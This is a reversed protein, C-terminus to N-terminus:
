APESVAGDVPPESEEEAYSRRRRALGLRIQVQTPFLTRLTTAWDRYWDRLQDLAERQAADAQRVAQVNGPVSPPALQGLQDILGRVEAVKGATLGRQSLMKRVGGSDPQQSKELGEVRSLFTTVSGVVQPGLPQQALDAFFAAEFGDRRERPVVRRIIARTRPFWTNEFTDLDQLIRQGEIGEVPLAVGRTFFHDLPRDIGVAKTWLSQGIRHEEPSYGDRRARLLLSPTQIAVLFRLARELLEVDNYDLKLIEDESLVDEQEIPEISEPVAKSKKKAAM